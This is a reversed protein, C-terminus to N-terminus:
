KRRQLGFNMFYTNRNVTLMGSRKLFLEPESWNEFTSGFSKKFSKQNEFKSGFSKKFSKQIQMIKMSLRRLLRGTKGKKECQFM